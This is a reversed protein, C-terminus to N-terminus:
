GDRRNIWVRGIWGIRLILRGLWGGDWIHLVVRGLAGIRGSMGRGSILEYIILISVVTRAVIVFIVLFWFRVLLRASALNLNFENLIFRSSM